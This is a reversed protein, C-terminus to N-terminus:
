VVLWVGLSQGRFGGRGGRKVVGKARGVGMCAEERIYIDVSRM